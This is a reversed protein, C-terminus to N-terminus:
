ASDEEGVAKLRALDRKLKRDIRNMAVAYVLILTVFVLISGQQAFWFGLPYGTGPLNWQNLFDALLVGCGLGAFAWICLLLVMLRLNKRWYEQHLDASTPARTSPDSSDGMLM